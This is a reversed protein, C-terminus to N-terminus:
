ISLFLFLFAIFVDVQAQYDDPEFNTTGFFSYLQIPSALHLNKEYKLTKILM